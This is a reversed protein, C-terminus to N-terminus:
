KRKNPINLEGLIWLLFILAVDWFLVGTTRYTSILYLLLCFVCLGLGPLAMLYQQLQVDSKLCGLGLTLRLFFLKLFLVSSILFPCSNGSMFLIQRNDIQGLICSILVDFNLLYVLALCAASWSLCACACYPYQQESFTLELKGRWFFEFKGFPVHFIILPISFVLM